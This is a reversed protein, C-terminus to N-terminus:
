GFKFWRHEFDYFMKMSLKVSFNQFIKIKRTKTSEPTTVMRSIFTLVGVITPMKVNILLILKM